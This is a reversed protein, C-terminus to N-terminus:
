KTIKKARLRAYIRQLPTLLKWSRSGTIQNLRLMLTQSVQEKEEIQSLLVDITKEKEALQSSITQVQKDLLRITEQTEWSLHRLDFNEKSLQWFRHEYERVLTVTTRKTKVFRIAWATIFFMDAELDRYFGHRAFKEAWYEPDHVNIHTAEKYDFPTSSIIIEDAHECFNEIALEAERPPMHELVEICTILDYKQPFPATISGQWCFPKIEPSVNGIAYESIDVGYAEVNRKRFAEVLFGWACGADLVTKPDFQEIIRKAIGDFFNLWSEDRNYPRGCYNAYYYEDYQDAM